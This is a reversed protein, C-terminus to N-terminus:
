PRTPSHEPARHLRPRIRWTYIAATLLAAIGFWQAQQLGWWTPDERVFTIFFRGFGNVVLAIIATAGEPSLRRGLQWIAALVVAGWILEYLAVPHVSALSPLYAQSEPHAYTIAWPLSTETAIREGSILDGIRAVFMGTLAPAVGTDAIRAVSYGRYRGYLLGGAAGGLSAGWLSLGGEWVYFVQFPVGRYFDLYDLVHFLRAGAFGVLVAWLAVSLADRRALGATPGRWVFLPVGVFVGALAFATTWTMFPSGFVNPDISITM